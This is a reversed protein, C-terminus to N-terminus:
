NVLDGLIHGVAIDVSLGIIGFEAYATISEIFCQIDRHRLGLDEHLWCSDINQPLAGHLIHLDLQATLQREAQHPLRHDLQM